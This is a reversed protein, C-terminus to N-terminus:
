DERMQRWDRRKGGEDNRFVESFRQILCKNASQNFTKRIEKICFDHSKNENQSLFQFIEEKEMGFGAKLIETVNENFAEIEEAYKDQINIALDEGMASFTEYLIERINEEYVKHARQQVDGLMTDKCNHAKTQLQAELDSINLQLREDWGSGEVVLAKTKQTYSKISSALLAEM